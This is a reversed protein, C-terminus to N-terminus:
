KKIIKKSTGEKIAYNFVGKELNTSLTEDEIVLALKACINNRFQTPNEVTHMNNTYRSNGKNQNM